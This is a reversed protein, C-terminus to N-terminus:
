RVASVSSVGFRLPSRRRRRHRASIPLPFDILRRAALHHLVEESVLGLVLLLLLGDLDDVLVVLLRWLLLLEAVVVQVLLLVLLFFVVSAAVARGVVGVERYCVDWDGREGHNIEGATNGM